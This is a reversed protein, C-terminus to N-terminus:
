EQEEDIPQQPNFRNWAAVLEARHERLYTLVRQTVVGGIVQMQRLEVVATDGARRVHCHPLHHRDTDDAYIYVMYPGFRLVAPM